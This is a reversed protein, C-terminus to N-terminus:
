ILKSLSELIMEKYQTFARPDTLAKQRLADAKQGTAGVASILAEVDSMDIEQSEALVRAVSQGLTLQRAREWRQKILKDGLKKDITVPDLDDAFQEAIELSIGEPLCGSNRLIISLYYGVYHEDYVVIVEKQHSVNKEGEKDKEVVDLIITQKYWPEVWMDQNPAPVTHILAFNNRPLWPQTNPKVGYYDQWNIEGVEELLLDENRGTKSIKLTM